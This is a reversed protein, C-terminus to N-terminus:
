IIRFIWSLFFLIRQSVKARKASPVTVSAALQDLKRPTVKAPSLLSEAITSKVRNNTPTKSKDIPNIEKRKQQGKELGSPESSSLGDQSRFGDLLVQHALLEKMKTPIEKRYAGGPNNLFKFEVLRHIPPELRMEIAQFSSFSNNKQEHDVTYTLGLARLAAVHNNAADREMKTLIDMSSAPRSLSASGDGASLIWLALPIFEETLLSNCKINKAKTPLAEMFKQVLGLNSERRYKIDTMERNSFTLNPKTEVRCLLHIGATVIPVSYGSQHSDAAFSLLEHVASCRDFAPDIYSVRLVNMFMANVAASDDGLSEVADMVRSVSARDNERMSTLGGTTFDANRSKTKRFVTTITSAIDNRNDKLGTGSLSNMLAQSLDNSDEAETAAFQLTFLSSRIDGGSSVVLQNLLSGGSMMSLKEQNLIAKLRAVLRASSPPNVNFHAAYPLLPRLAPAYKHNCICIIPRRLYTNKTQKQKSNSKSPIEAKVIDVLAQIAGRADAGDIEDLILCNPKGYDDKNILSNNRRNNNNNNMATDNNAGPKFNITTSEMARQIRDKLVGSSREDSANVEVPRYGAHRAVIHALTTKGSSSLSFRV